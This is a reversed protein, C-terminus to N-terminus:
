TWAAWQWEVAVFIFGVFHLSDGWHPSFFLPKPTMLFRSEFGLEATWINHSKKDTFHLYYLIGWLTTAFILHPGYILRRVDNFLGQCILTGRLQALPYYGWPRSVLICWRGGLQFNSIRNSAMVPWMNLPRNGLYEVTECLCPMGGFGPMVWSLCRDLFVAGEQTQKSLLLLCSKNPSTVQCRWKCKWLGEHETSKHSVGNRRVGKPASYFPLTSLVDHYAFWGADRNPSLAWLFFIYIAEM